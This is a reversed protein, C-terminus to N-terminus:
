GYDNPTTLRAREARWRRLLGLAGLGQEDIAAARREQYEILIESAFEALREDDANRIHGRPVAYVFRGIPSEFTPIHLFDREVFEGSQEQELAAQIFFDIAYSPYGFLVGYGRYRDLRPMREVTAVVVAPHTSPTLAYRSFFSAYRKLAEAFSARDVVFGEVYRKGDYERDFAMVDAYPTETRLAALASRVRKMATLDPAELDIVGSWFGTSMPKIGGIVTFLAERDLMRLVLEDTLRAIAERDSAVSASPRTQAAHEATSPNSAPTRSQSAVDPHPEALGPLLAVAIALTLWFLSRRIAQQVNFM